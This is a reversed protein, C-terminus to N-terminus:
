LYQACGLKMEISLLETGPPCMCIMKLKLQQSGFTSFPVCVGFVPPERWGRRVQFLSEVPSILPRIKLTNALLLRGSIEGTSLGGERSM